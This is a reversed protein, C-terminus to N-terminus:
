GVRAEFAASVPGCRGCCAEGADEGGDDNYISGALRDDRGDADRGVPPAAVPSAIGLAGREGTLGRRRLDVQMDTVTEDALRSMPIACLRALPTDAFADASVAGGGLQGAM